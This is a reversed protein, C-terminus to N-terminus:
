VLIKLITIEGISYPENTKFFLVDNPRYKRNSKYYTKESFIGPINMKKNIVNMGRVHDAHEHSIFIAKIKEKDLGAETLRINLQKYYIGADVLIAEKETGIYYANGNSGSAIACIEVM